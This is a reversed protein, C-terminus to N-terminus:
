PEGIVARHRSKPSRNDGGNNSRGNGSSDGDQAKVDAVSVIKM